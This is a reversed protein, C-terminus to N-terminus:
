VLLAFRSSSTLGLLVLAGPVAPEGLVFRTAHENPAGDKDFVAYGKSTKLRMLRAVEKRADAKTAASLKCRSVRTM